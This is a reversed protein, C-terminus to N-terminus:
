NGRSFKRDRLWLTIIGTTIFLSALATGLLVLKKKPATPKTDLSPQTIVAIPPYSPSNILKSLDLKTLNSSYLADAIKVDRELSDLKSEEQTLVKKRSELQTIQQNLATVHAQLGRYQEQLLVLQQFLNAQESSSNSLSLRELVVPSISRSLLIQSHRALKAYLEDNTKQKAIIPPSTSTFRTNLRTLETASKSYETLYQQFVQNSQLVLADSAESVSLGLSSALQEVRSRMRALEAAAEAFSRRLAELNESASKLQETSSLLSRSKYDYLRKQAVQLKGRLPELAPHMNRNYEASEALRLEDLRIELVKQLAVAKEQALQPSEAQIELQLLTTNNL